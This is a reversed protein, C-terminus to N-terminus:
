KIGVVMWDFGALHEVRTKRFGAERMWASCDAGTFDFGAQTEILMNLSMLLGMLNKRREDDILYECVIFAGGSPLAEYAKRVLLKKEDLNWDHLIRGMILVDAHPLPDTFFSGPFFRLRRQLAFSKVYEEFRPGVVPLDFGGGTLHRNALAVQVPLGGEACGVDIFSKYSKWHFKHALAKATHLSFGTMAKLFLRLLNPDAYIADFISEGRKIENQPRGTRLGETLSGWFPYLRANAM